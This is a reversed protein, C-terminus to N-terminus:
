NILGVNIIMRGLMQEGKKKTVSSWAEKLIWEAQTMQTARVEGRALFAQSGPGFDYAFDM